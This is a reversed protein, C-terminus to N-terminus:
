AATKNGSWTRPKKRWGRQSRGHQPTAPFTVLGFRNSRSRPSFRQSIM